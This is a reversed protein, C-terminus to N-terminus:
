EKLIDKLVVKDPYNILEVIINEDKANKGEVVYLKGGELPKNSKSFDVDGDETSVKIDEITVWKEALKKEAIESYVMPKARLDKLVRCNPLYCFETKKSKFMFVLFMVGVLFGVLYYGLRHVFNM